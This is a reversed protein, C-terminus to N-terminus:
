EAIKLRLFKRNTSDIPVSATKRVVSVGDVTNTAVESHTIGNTNWSNTDALNGSLQPVVLNANNADARVHYTLVLNSGNVGGTPLNSRNVANSPSFAGFAYQTLLEPTAANTGRWSAFTSGSPAAAVIVTRTVATGANGAADSANYTVTYEGALLTNVDGTGTNSTSTGEAVDAATAGPDTWTAGNALNLPNAGTLTIVPGVGDDNSFFPTPSLTVAVGNSGLSYSRNVLANTDVQEFTTNTASNTRWFKYEFASGANGAVAYTGSYITTSGERTLSRNTANFDGFRVQIPDGHAFLGKTIQVGMDVKFTLSRVQSVNNFFVETLLQPNDVAALTLVRPQDNPAVPDQDDEYGGNAAGAAGSKFKYNLNTGLAGEIQRTLKFVDTTGERVMEVGTGWDTVEGVLYVKDSDPNFNGLERQVGMNVAFTVNRVQAQNVVLTGNGNTSDWPGGDTGAANMGAYRWVGDGIKFRYAYFYTGATLDSGNVTAQYEDDGGTVGLNYTAARWVGPTTWTSPDTNASNVGLEATINPVQGVGPTAGIIYIRGYITASSITTITNTLPGQLKRWNPEPDGVAIVRDVSAPNNAQDFVEYTVLRLANTTTNFTDNAPDFVAGDVKIQQQLNNTATINDGVVVDSNALIVNSNASVLTFKAVGSALNITPPISDSVPNDGTDYAQKATKTGGVTDNYITGPVLDTLPSALQQGFFSEWVDPIGDPEGDPTAALKALSASDTLENLEFVYWGAADVTPNLSANGAGRAGGFGWKIAYGSNATILYPANSGAATDFYYLMRWKFNEYKFLRNQRSGDNAWGNFLGPAAVSSYQSAFTGVPHVVVTQTATGANNAADRATYTVTYTGAASLNVATSADNTISSTVDTSVDDTATAGADATYTGNVPVAVLKQSLTIAPPVIDATTTTILFDNFYPQAQDGSQLSSAYFKIKDIAANSVVVNTSYTGVGDRGNAVIFISNSGSRTFSWTMANTGYNFNVSAGNLTIAATGGNNINFIENTGASLNFGKNGSGGSDYNISWKFSLTQGTVLPNSITREANVYPSGTGNAYLGFSNANMGAIGASAPNGVFNGASGGGSSLNWPGFGTGGNAGNTWGGSYNSANDVANTTQSFSSSSFVALGLVACLISFRNSVLNM